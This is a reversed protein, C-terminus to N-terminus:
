FGRDLFSRSVITSPSLVFDVDPMMAMSREYHHLAVPPYPCKWRRHEEALTNWFNEPHSNGGDLFTKGGNARVWRFCANAYGYSSIIHNGPRWNGNQGM